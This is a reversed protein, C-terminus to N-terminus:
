RRLFRYGIIKVFTLLIAVGIEVLGFIIWSLLTIPIATGFAWNITMIMLVPGTIFALVLIGMGIFSSLIRSM